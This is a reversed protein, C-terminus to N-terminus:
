GNAREQAPRQSTVVLRAEVLRQLVEEVQRRKSDNQELESLCRRRRTDPVGASEDGLHVLNTLVERALPRVDESLEFYANDAWETLGGAVGRIEHYADFTLVGEQRRKWLETLAFELLPLTTARGVRHEDNAYESADKVITDVLGPEFEWGRLIAPQQVIARLQDKSLFLPANKLGAEIWPLLASAEQSLRAYFDDRMVLIVTTRHSRYLLEALQLVFLRRIEENCSVFIDEFQDIVIVLRKQSHTDIWNQVAGVLGSELANIGVDSLEAFPNEAPRTILIECHENDWPAGRSLKPVLGAQVLSSKGCGSPGLLALFRTQQRLKHLLDDIVSEFGFFLDSDEKSFAALSRYPSDDTPQLVPCVGGLVETPIIFATESLKGYADKTAIGVVMGIARRRMEDWVPAGSFGPTIENSRLALLRRSHLTGAEGLVEGMGPLGQIEGLPPFGFTRVKHGTTLKSSGLPIPSVEPPLGDTKLIAVDEEDSARWWSPVIKAEATAGDNHFRLSVEDGTPARALEAVHACTAILGDKQVVFGTGVITGSRTLISVISNTWRM